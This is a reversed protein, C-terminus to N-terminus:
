LMILTQEVVCYLVCVKILQQEKELLEKVLKTIRETVLEFKEQLEVFPEEPTEARRYLKMVLNTAQETFTPPKTSSTLFTQVEPPEISSAQSFSPQSLITDNESDTNANTVRERNCRRSGGYRRITRPPTLLPIPESGFEPPPLLLASSHARIARTASRTQVRLFTSRISIPSPSKYDLDGFSAPM